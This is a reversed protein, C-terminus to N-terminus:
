DNEERLNFTIPLHDSYIKENPRGNPSLLEYKGVTTIIKLSDEEFIEILNPRLIVQDFTNWVYSSSSKHHYYTGLVKNSKNGMLNWMPNYYYYMKQNDVIRSNKLATKKCMISNFGYSNVMGICFPNMNFDGVVLSKNINYDKEISEFNTKLKTSLMSIESDTKNLLSPLHVAFLLLEIRNKLEIKYASYRFGDKIVSCKVNSKRIVLVKSKIDYIEFKYNLDLDSFRSILITKDLNEHEALILIDIDNEFCM